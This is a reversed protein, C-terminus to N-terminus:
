SYVADNAQSHLEFKKCILAEFNIVIYSTLYSSTKLFKSSRAHFQLLNRAVPSNCQVVFNIVYDCKETNASPLCNLCTPFSIRINM